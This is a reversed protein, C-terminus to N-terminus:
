AKNSPYNSQCKKCYTVWEAIRPDGEYRYQVVGQHSHWRAWEGNLDKPVFYSWKKPNFSLIKKAMDSVLGVPYHKLEHHLELWGHLHCQGNAHFEIYADRARHHTIPACACVEVFSRMLWKSQAMADMRLWRASLPPTITIEVFGGDAVYCSMLEKASTKCPRITECSPSNAKDIEESSVVRKM